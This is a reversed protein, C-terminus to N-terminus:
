IAALNFPDRDDFRTKTAKDIPRHEALDSFLSWIQKIDAEEYISSRFRWTLNNSLESGALNGGTAEKPSQGKWDNKGPCVNLNRSNGSTPSSGGSVRQLAMRRHQGDLIKSAALAAVWISICRSMGLRIPLQGDETRWFPEFKSRVRILDWVSNSGSGLGLETPYDKRYEKCYSEIFRRNADKIQKPDVSLHRCCAPYQM